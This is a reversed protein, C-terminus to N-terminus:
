RVAFPASSSKEIYKIKKIELYSLDNSAKLVNDLASKESLQIRLSNYEKEFQSFQKIFERGKYELRIMNIVSLFYISFIVALIIILKASTSGSFLKKIYITM